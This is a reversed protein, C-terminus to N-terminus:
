VILSLGYCLAASSLPVTLNDTGGPSVAELGTAVISVPLSIILNSLDISFNPTAITLITLTVAYSVALMAISGEWSKKNGML